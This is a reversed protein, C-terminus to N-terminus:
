RYFTIYEKYYRMFRRVYRREFKRADIEYKDNSYKKSNKKFDEETYGLQSDRVGFIQSQMWHRFEHLFHLFIVFKKQKQSKATVYPDSCLYIKNTGFVYASSDERYDVQLVLDTKKITHKTNIENYILNLAYQLANKNLKNKKLWRKTKNTPKIRFLHM